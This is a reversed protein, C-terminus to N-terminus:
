RYKLHPNLTESPYRINCWDRSKPTSEMFQVVHKLDNNSAPGTRPHTARNLVRNRFVVGTLSNPRSESFREWPRGDDNLHSTFNLDRRGLASHYSSYFVGGLPYLHLRPTAEWGQNPNHKAPWTLTFLTIDSQSTGLLLLRFLLPSLEFRLQSQRCRTRCYNTCRPSCPQIFVLLTIFHHIVIPEWLDIYINPKIPLVVAEFSSHSWNFCNSFWCGIGPGRM